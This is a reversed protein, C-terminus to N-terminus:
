PIGLYVECLHICVKIDLISNPNLHVLEIRYYYLLGQFFDGCPIEFGHKFFPTFVVTEM